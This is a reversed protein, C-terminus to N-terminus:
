PAIITFLAVWLSVQIATTSSWLLYAGMREHRYILAGLLSNVMWVITGVAPLTFLFVKPEIRDARGLNDFHVPLVAPLETYNLSIAGLLAILLMLGTALLGWALGDNLLPFDFQPIFGNTTSWAQTSGMKRRVRWANIIDTIKEPSIVYTRDPTVVLTCYRFPASGRLVLPGHGALTGRGLYLGFINIGKFDIQSAVSQTPTIFQIESLPIQQRRIGYNIILGNRNLQYKLTFLLITLYLSVFAVTLILLTILFATFLAAPTQQRPTIYGMIGAGVGAALTVGLILYGSKSPVTKFIVRGIGGSAL